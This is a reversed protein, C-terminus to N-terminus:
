EKPTEIPKQAEACISDRHRGEEEVERFRDDYWEGYKRFIVNQFGAKLLVNKLSPKDWMWQHRSNAFAERLRGLFHSRSCQIGINAKRMFYSNAEAAVKPESSSLLRLYEKTYTELDPVICRFIGGPCLYSYINELALRFDQESLHELVHSAFVLRCSSQSLKVGRVIDGYQVSEPWAPANLLRAAAKGIVPLHSLRLSYSADINLWSPGASLGCGINLCGYASAPRKM